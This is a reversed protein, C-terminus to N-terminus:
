DGDICDALQDAATAGSIATLNEINGGHTATYWKGSELAVWMCFKQADGSNDVWAYTNSGPDKPVKAMYTTGTIGAKCNAVTSAISTPIAAQSLFKDCENYFVEQASIIQRMDAKRTADRASARAGGMSVLVISALVGIIAIVVLLEILTFGKSNRLALGQKKTFVQLM